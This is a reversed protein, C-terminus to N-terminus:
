PEVPIDTIRGIERGTQSSYLRIEGSALKDDALIPVQFLLKKANAEWQVCGFDDAMYIISGEMPASEETLKSGRANVRSCEGKPLLAMPKGTRWDYGQAQIWSACDKCDGCARNEQDRIHAFLMAVRSRIRDDEEGVLLEEFEEALSRLRAESLM